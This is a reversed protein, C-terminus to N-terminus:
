TQEGVQKIRSESMNYGGSRIFSVNAELWGPLFTSLRGVRWADDTAFKEKNFYAM